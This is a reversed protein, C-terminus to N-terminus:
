LLQTALPAYLQEAGDVTWLALEVGDTAVSSGGQSTTRFEAAKVM